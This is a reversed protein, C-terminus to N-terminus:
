GDVMNMKEISKMAIAISTFRKRVLTLEEGRGPSETGFHDIPDIFSEFIPKMYECLRRSPRTTMGNPSQSGESSKEITCRPWREAERIM